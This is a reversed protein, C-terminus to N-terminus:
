IEIEKENIRYTKWAVEGVTKELLFQTVPTLKHLCMLLM